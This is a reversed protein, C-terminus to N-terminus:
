KVWKYSRRTAAAYVAQYSVGDFDKAISTVKEGKDRRRRIERVESEGLKAKWQGRRVSEAPELDFEDFLWHIIPGAGGRVPAGNRNVWLHVSERTRGLAAALEHVGGVLNALARVKGPSAPEYRVELGGVFFERILAPWCGSVGRYEWNRWTADPVGMREAVERQTMYSPQARHRPGPMTLKERWSRLEDGSIPSSDIDFVGSPNHDIDVSTWEESGEDEEVQTEPEDFIGLRYDDYRSM